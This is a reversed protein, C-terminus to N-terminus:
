RESRPHKWVLDGEDLQVVGSKGLVITGGDDVGNQGVSYLIFAGDQYRHYILPKGTFIDLVIEKQYRPVLRALSEPYEGKDLRFRELACATAALAHATQSGVAKNMAKELAPILMSALVKHELLRSLTSGGLEEQLRTAVPKGKVPDAMAPDLVYRKYIDLYNAQEFLLWGKPYLFNLMSELELYYYDQENQGPLDGITRFNMEHPFKRRFTEIMRNGLIMESKIAQRMEAIMDAAEFQKQFSLLQSANWQHSAMGYWVPNLLIERMAIRVLVSILFPEEKLGTSLSLGFQTDQFAPTTQHLFLEAMARVSCQQVMMKLHALHPLLIAFPVEVDYPIDFSIATRHQAEQQLQDLLPGTTLQFMELITRAAANPESVPVPATGSAPRKSEGLMEVPNPWVSKRWWQSVSPADRYGRDAAEEAFRNWREKFQEYAQSDRNTQASTFEYLPKLLESHALNEEPPVKPTALQKIDLSIGQNQLQKIKQNLTYAGRAKEEVYFALILTALGMLIGALRGFAGTSQFWSAINM